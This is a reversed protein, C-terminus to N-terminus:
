KGAVHNNLFTSFQDRYMDTVKVMTDGIYVVFNRDVTRIHGLSIIYSRSVRMFKDAPLFDEVSKMTLHTVISNKEGELHFKVYDKLGEIFKIKDLEVRRLGGDCRLFMETPSTQSGISELSTKQENLEYWRKAKEAARTFKDFRIPKLLFDMAEVDYSDLAYEKFATTFVIKTTPPLMNALVMGDMDPMQIDLFLLDVSNEQLYKVAELSDTFSVAHELFQTRGIFNEILKVALPEDDVVGCKIMRM